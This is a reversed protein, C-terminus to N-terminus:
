LSLCFLHPSKLDKCVPTSRNVQNNENNNYRIDTSYHLYVCIGMQLWVAVKTAGTFNLSTDESEQNELHTKLLSSWSARLPFNSPLASCLLFFYSWYSTQRHARSGGRWHKKNRADEKSGTDRGVRNKKDENEETRRGGKVSATKEAAKFRLSPLTDMTVAPLLASARWDRGPRRPVFSVSGPAETFDQKRM